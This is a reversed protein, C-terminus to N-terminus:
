GSHSGRSAVDQVLSPLSERTIVINRRVEGSRGLPVGPRDNVTFSLGGANGVSLVLEGQAELTKTEGERLVEDLVTEGDATVRVWCSEQASLTLVLGDREPVAAPPALSPPPYV